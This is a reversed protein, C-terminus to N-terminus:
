EWWYGICEMVDLHQKFIADLESPSPEKINMARARPVPQIYDFNVQESCFTQWPSNIWKIHFFQGVLGLYDYMRKVLPLHIRTQVADLIARKEIVTLNKIRWFKLMQSPILYKEISKVHLGGFDQSIVNGHEYMIFVHSYNGKTHSKIGWGVFGSLDDCLVIIPFDEPGLNRPDLYVKDESNPTKATEM